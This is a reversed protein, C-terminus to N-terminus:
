LSFRTSRNKEKLSVGKVQEKLKALDQVPELGEKIKNSFKLNM